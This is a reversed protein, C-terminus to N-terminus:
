PIRINMAEELLARWEVRYVTLQGWNVCETYIAKHNM